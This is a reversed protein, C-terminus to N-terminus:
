CVYVHTQCCMSLNMNWIHVNKQTENQKENLSKIYKETSISITEGFFVALAMETSFSFGKTCFTGCNRPIWKFQIEWKPIM